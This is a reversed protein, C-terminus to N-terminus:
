SRSEQKSGYISKPLECVMTEQGGEVFGGPQAMYIREDLNGNLFATKVDMQWIEYDLAAAISLLIRTSKLIAVPLFTAEYDIGKNQTYGKAVLRAKFTEVNRDSVRKKKYMWKCAVLKIGEPLDVLKWVKNVYMSHMEVKMADLWINSESGVMAQSYSVPGDMDSIAVLIDGYSM